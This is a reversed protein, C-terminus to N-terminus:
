YVVVQAEEEEKEAPFSGRPLVLIYESHAGEPRWHAISDCHTLFQFTSFFFAHKRSQHSVCIM